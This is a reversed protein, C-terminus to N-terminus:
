PNFGLRCFATILTSQQREILEWKLLDSSDIQPSKNRNRQKNKVLNTGYDSKGKQKRLPRKSTHASALHLHSRQLPPSATWDGSSSTAEGWVEFCPCYGPWGPALDPGLLLPPVRLNELDVTQLLNQCCNESLPLELILAMHQLLWVHIHPSKSWNSSSFTGKFWQNWFNTEKHTVLFALHSKLHDETILNFTFIIWIKAM